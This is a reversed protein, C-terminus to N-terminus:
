RGVTRKSVGSVFFIHRVLHPVRAVTDNHPVPRGHPENRVSRKTVFCRKASCNEVRRLESRTRIHSAKAGMSLEVGCGEWVNWTNSPRM